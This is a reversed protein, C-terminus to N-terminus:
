INNLTPRKMEELVANIAGGKLLYDVKMAGQYTTEGLLNFCNEYIDGYNDKAARFVHVIGGILIHKESTSQFLVLCLGLIRLWGILILEEKAEKEGENGKGRKWDACKALEELERRAERSFHLENVFVREFHEDRCLRHILFMWASQYALQTLNRQEQHYQIIEKIENLYLERKVECYGEISSLAFLAMEVEKQTEENEEKESAVKLLFPLCISIYKLSPYEKLLLYCECLDVLLKENKEETKKEEEIIM